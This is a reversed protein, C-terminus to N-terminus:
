MTSVQVSHRRDKGNLTSRSSTCAIWSVGHRNQATGTLYMMSKESATVEGACTALLM